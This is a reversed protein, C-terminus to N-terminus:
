VVFSFSFRYLLLVLITYLKKKLKIKPVLSFKLNLLLTNKLLRAYVVNKELEMEQKAKRPARLSM